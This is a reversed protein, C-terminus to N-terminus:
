PHLVSATPSSTRFATFVRVQREFCPSHANTLTFDGYEISQSREQDEQLVGLRGELPERIERDSSQRRINSVALHAKAFIALFNRKKKREDRGTPTSEQGLM